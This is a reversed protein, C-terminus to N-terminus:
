FQFWLSIYLYSKVNNPGVPVGNRRLQLEVLAQLESESLGIGTVDSALDAVIVEISGVGRLSQRGEERSTTQGYAVGSVLLVFAVCVGPIRRTM